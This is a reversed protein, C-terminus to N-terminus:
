IKHAGNLRDFECRKMRLKFDYTDVARIEQFQLRYRGVVSAPM